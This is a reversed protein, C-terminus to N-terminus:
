ISTSFLHKCSATENTSALLATLVQQLVKEKAVDSALSDDGEYVAKGSAHSHDTVYM